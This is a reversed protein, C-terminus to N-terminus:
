GSGIFETLQKKNKIPKTRLEPYKYRFDATSQRYDSEFQDEGAYEQEFLKQIRDIFRTRDTKDPIIKQILANNIQVSFISKIFNECIKFGGM